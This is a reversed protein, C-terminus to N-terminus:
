GSFVTESGQAIKSSCGYQNNSQISDSVRALAEGNIYVGGSGSSTKGGHTNPNSGGKNHNNWTHTETHAKYGDIFVDPSGENNSRAPFPGHGTGMDGKRSASKTATQAPFIVGEHKVYLPTLLSYSKGGTTLTFKLPILEDDNPTSINTLSATSPFSNLNSTTVPSNLGDRYTMSVDGNTTNSLSGTFTITFAQVDWDDDSYTFPTISVNLNPTLQSSNLSTVSNINYRRYIPTGDFEHGILDAGFILLTYTSALDSKPLSTYNGGGLIDIYGFLNSSVSTGNSMTDNILIRDTAVM